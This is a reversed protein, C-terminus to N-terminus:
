RSEGLRRETTNLLAAIDFIVAFSANPAKKLFPVDAMHKQWDLVVTCLDAFENWNELHSSQPSVYALKSVLYLAFIALKVLSSFRATALAFAVHVVNCECQARCPM